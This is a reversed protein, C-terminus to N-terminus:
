KFIKLGLPVTPHMLAPLRQSKWCCKSFVLAEWGESSALDGQHVTHFLPSVKSEKPCGMITVHSRERPM